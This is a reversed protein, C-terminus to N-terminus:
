VFSDKFIVEDFDGFGHNIRATEYFNNQNLLNNVRDFSIPNKYMDDNHSELQIYKIKAGKGGEFLGKLCYYEHGETDIKLIDINDIYNSDIFDKLTIVKVQYSKSIIDKPQVGLVQAKKKLYESNTNLEEFTSTYDFINEHFEKEGSYDSIGLNFLKINDHKVYRDTLARFLKPNPELAYILCNPNISLFFDISQGKNAGVDIVKCLTDGFAQKYFLKLKREFFFMENLDIFLKIISIRVKSFFQAM